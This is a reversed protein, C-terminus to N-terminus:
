PAGAFEDSSMRISMKQRMMVRRVRPVAVIETSKSGGPVIDLLNLVM